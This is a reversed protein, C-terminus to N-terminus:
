GPEKQSPPRSQLQEFVPEYEPPIAHREVGAEPAARDSLEAVEESSKPRATSLPIAPDPTGIGSGSRAKSTPAADTELQLPRAGGQGAAMPMVSEDYLDPDTSTGPTLPIGKQPQADLQAQLQELDSSM